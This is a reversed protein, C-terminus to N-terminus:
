NVTDMGRHGARWDKKNHNSKGFFNDDSLLLEQLDLIM